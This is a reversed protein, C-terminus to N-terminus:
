DFYSDEGFLSSFLFYKFGGGLVHNFWRQSVATMDLDKGEVSEGVPLDMRRSSSKKTM